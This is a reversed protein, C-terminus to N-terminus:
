GGIATHCTACVPEELGTDHCIICTEPFARAEDVHLGGNTGNAYTPGLEHPTRVSNRHCDVCYSNDEHCTLCNGGFSAEFGHDLLWSPGHPSMGSGYVATGQHCDDCSEQSHCIVCASNSISAEMSHDAVWDGMRHDAPLPQVGEHCTQCDCILPRTVEQEMDTLAGHCQDCSYEAHRDHAFTPYWSVFKIAELNDVDVHCMGCGDMDEVDHCMGCNEHNPMASEATLDHCDECAMEAEAVHLGHSFNFAKEGSSAGLVLALALALVSLAILYRSRTRKM